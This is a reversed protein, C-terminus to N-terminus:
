TTLLTDPDHINCFSCWLCYTTLCLFCSKCSQRPWSNIMQQHLVCTRDEQTKKFTCWCLAPIDHSIFGKLAPCSVDTQHQLLFANCDLALFLISFLEVTQVCKINQSCPDRPWPFWSSVGLQQTQKSSSPSTEEHGRVAGLNWLQGEAMNEGLRLNRWVQAEM